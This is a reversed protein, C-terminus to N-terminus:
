DNDLNDKIATAIATVDTEKSLQEVVPDTSATDIGLRSCVRDLLGLIATLEQEALINVQLDIQARLDSIRQLERQAILVISTLIIAEFTLALNLLDFPHPDVSIRTTNLIIWGAFVVTHGAIFAGSGAVRRAVTSLRSLQKREDLVQRELDVIAQVNKTLPESQKNSVHDAHGRGVTARKKAGNGAQDDRM